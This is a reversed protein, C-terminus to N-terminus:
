NSSGVFFVSFEVRAVGLLKANHSVISDTVSDHDMLESALLVSIKSTM